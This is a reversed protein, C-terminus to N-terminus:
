GNFIDFYRTLTDTLEQEESRSRFQPLEFTRPPARVFDKWFDTKLIGKKLLDFYYDTEALPTLVNFYPIHIGLSRIMEPLKQRYDDSEGPAGIVFYGVITINYKNCLACFKAVDKYRQAKRFYKLIDNNLHEIGVHFRTCGAEALAKIVEERVELVGRVSWGVDFQNETLLRCFELVRKKELNFTDDLVHISTAGLGKLVHFENFIVQPSKTNYQKQQVDCYICKLPCGKSSFMPLRLNGADFLLRAGARELRYDDLNLVHRAPFPIANLDSPDGHFTGEPCGEELWQPFTSEADGVFVAHAGQTRIAAHHYTAHPGGVVKLPVQSKQLIEWMSWARYTVSSIGLIDPNLEAIHALLAEVSLDLSSADILTVTHHEPINAMLSLVGLPTYKVAKEKYIEPTQRDVVQGDPPCIVFVIHYSKASSPTIHATTM